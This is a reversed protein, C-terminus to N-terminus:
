TVKMYYSLFITSSFIYGVALFLLLVLSVEWTAILFIEIIFLFTRDGLETLVKPYFKELLMANGPDNRAFKSEGFEEHSSM